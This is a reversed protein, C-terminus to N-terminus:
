SVVWMELLGWRVAVLWMSDSPVYVCVYVGEEDGLLVLLELEIKVVLSYRELLTTEPAGQGPERELPTLMAGDVQKVGDRRKM